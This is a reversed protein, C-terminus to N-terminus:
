HEYEPLGEDGFSSGLWIRDEETLEFDEKITGELLESLVLRENDETQKTVNKKNMVSM